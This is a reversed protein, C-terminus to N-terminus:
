DRYALRIHQAVLETKLVLLAAELQPDLSKEILDVAKAPPADAHTDNNAVEPDTPTTPDAPPNDNASLPAPPTDHAAPNPQDGERLIDLNQRIEIADAVQQTTMDVVLDPEIGWAVSERSKHIIRGRPLVYYQTTLKLYASGGALKFLDQVSGKGFSRTGIVLGRQFDQSRM